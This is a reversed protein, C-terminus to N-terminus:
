EDRKSLAKTLLITATISGILPPYINVNQLTALADFAEKFSTYLIGGAFAAILAVSFVGVLRGHVEKPSIVATVITVFLGVAVYILGVIIYQNLM